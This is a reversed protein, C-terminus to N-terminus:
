EIKDIVANTMMRFFSFSLFGTPLRVQFRHSVSSGKPSGATKADIKM